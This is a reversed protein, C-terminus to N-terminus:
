ALSQPTQVKFLRDPVGVHAAASTGGSRLSHLGFQKPDFGLAALKQLVLERVRTYSIGGKKRLQEGFKTRVIGRFLPLEPSHSVKGLKM